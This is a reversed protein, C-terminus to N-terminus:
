HKNTELKKLYTEVEKRVNQAETSDQVNKVINVWKDDPADMLKTHIYAVGFYATSGTMFFPFWLKLFNTPWVRAGFLTPYPAPM